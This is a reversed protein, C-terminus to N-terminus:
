FANWEMRVMECCSVFLSDMDVALRGPCFSAYAIHRHILPPITTSLCLCVFLCVGVFVCRYMSRLKGLTSLTGEAGFRGSHVAADHGVQMRVKMTDFPQGVIVGVGGAAAGAWIACSECPRQQGKDYGVKDEDGGGGLPSRGRTPEEPQGKSGVHGVRDGAISNM